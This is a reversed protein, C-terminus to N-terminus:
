VRENVRRLFHFFVRLKSFNECRHRPSKIHVEPLSSAKGCITYSVHSISHFQIGPAHGGCSNIIAIATELLLTGNKTGVLVM